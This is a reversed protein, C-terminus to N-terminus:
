RALQLPRTSGYVSGGGGSMSPVPQNFSKLAQMNGADYIASRLAAGACGKPLLNNLSGFLGNLNPLKIPNECQIYKLLTDVMLGCVQSSFADTLGLSSLLDGMVSSAMSQFNLMKPVMGAASNMSNFESKFLNQMLGAAPGASSLLGGSLQSSYMSPASTFQRSIRGLEKSMCPSNATQSLSVPPAYNTVRFEKSATTFRNAQADGAASLTPDCMPNSTSGISDAGFAQVSAALFFVVFAM